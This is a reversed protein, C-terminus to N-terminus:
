ATSLPPPLPLRYHWTGMMSSNGNYNKKTVKAIIIFRHVAEVREELLEYQLITNAVWNGVQM